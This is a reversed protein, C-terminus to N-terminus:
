MSACMRWAWWVVGGVGGVCGGDEEVGACAVGGVGVGGSVPAGTGPWRIRRNVAGLSDRGGGRWEALSRRCRRCGRVPTRGGGCGDASIGSGGGGGVLCDGSCVMVGYLYSLRPFMSKVTVQVWVGARSGKGGWTPDTGLAWRQGAELDRECVEALDVTGGGDDAGLGRGRWAAGAVRAGGRGRFLWIGVDGVVAEIVLRCGGQLQAAADGLEGRRELGRGGAWPGRGM